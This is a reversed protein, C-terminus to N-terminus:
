IQIINHYVATHKGDIDMDKHLHGFYWHKYNINNKLHELYKVLGRDDDNTNYWKNFISEPCTHTIIYDVSNNHNELNCLGENMEINTPVEASWWSINERRCYKDISYAGGMTFIKQGDISYVQGRMLHIVSDNIKHINGGNWQEIPYGNLLDFNEHNGDVFLTTFSKDHLWQQWYKDEGSKDSWVGGFDGCVVIYDSKSLLKQEPFKSVSLKSIDIPIHTDGTIFIM